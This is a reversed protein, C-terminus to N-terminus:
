LTERSIITAKYVLPNKQSPLNMASEARSSVQSQWLAFRRYFGLLERFNVVHGAHKPFHKLMSTWIWNSHHAKQIVHQCEYEQLNGGRYPPLLFFFTFMSTVSWGNKRRRGGGKAPFDERARDLRRREM